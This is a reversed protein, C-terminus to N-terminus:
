SRREGHGAVREGRVIEDDDVRGERPRALLGDDIAHTFHVTDVEDGHGHGAPAGDPGRLVHELRCGVVGDGRGALLFLM